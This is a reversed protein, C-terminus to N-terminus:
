LTALVFTLLALSLTASGAFAVAGRLLASPYTAGDIRALLGAAAAVLMCFLTVVALLLALLMLHISPTNM